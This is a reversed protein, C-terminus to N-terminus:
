HQWGDSTLNKYIQHSHDFTFDSYSLSIHVTLTYKADDFLTPKHLETASRSMLLTLTPLEIRGELEEKITRHHSANMM